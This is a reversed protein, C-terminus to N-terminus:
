ASFPEILVDWRFWGINSRITPEAIERLETLEQHNRIEVTCLVHIQVIIPPSLTNRILNM